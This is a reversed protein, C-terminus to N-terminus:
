SAQVEVFVKTKSADVSTDLKEQSPQEVENQLFGNVFERTPEDFEGTPNLNNNEQMKRVADQTAGDYFGTPDRDLFGLELLTQQLKKVETGIDGSKLTTFFQVSPQISPTYLVLEKAFPVAFDKTQLEALENLQTRGVGVVEGRRNFVIATIKPNRYLVSLNNMIKGTVMIQNLPKTTRIDQTQIDPKLFTQASKWTPQGLEVDMSAISQFNGRQFPEAIYKLEGAYLFTEGIYTYLPNKFSDNLTVKYSIVQVAWQDNPNILEFIYGFGDSARFIKKSQVQIHKLTRLECSGCPGGCDVDTEGQNRKGDTCTPAPNYLVSIIGWVILAGVILFTISYILQKTFRMLYTYLLFYLPSLSSM